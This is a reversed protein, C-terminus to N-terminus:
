QESLYYAFAAAPAILYLMSTSRSQQYSSQNRDSLSPTAGIIASQRTLPRSFLAFRKQLM